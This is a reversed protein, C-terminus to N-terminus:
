YIFEAFCSPNSASTTPSSVQFDNNKSENIISSANTPLPPVLEDLAGLSLIKKISELVERNSSVKYASNEQSETHFTVQGQGQEGDAGEMVISPLLLNSAQLQDYLFGGMSDNKNM